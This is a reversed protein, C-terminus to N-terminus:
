SVTLFLIINYKPWILNVSTFYAPSRLFKRYRNFETKPKCGPIHCKAQEDAHTIHKRHAPLVPPTRLRNYPNPTLGCCAM